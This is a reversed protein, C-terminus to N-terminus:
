CGSDSIISYPTADGWRFTQGSNCFIAVGVLTTFTSDSYYDFEHGSRTIQAGANTPASVTAFSFLFLTAILLSRLRRVSIAKM